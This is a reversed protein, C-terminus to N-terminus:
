IIIADCPLEIQELADKHWRNITRRTMNMKEAIEDISYGNIYLYRLVLQYNYNKLHGIVRHVQMRLNVLLDIEENIKEDLEWVKDLSKQFGADGTPSSTVKEGLIPSSLSTAMEMLEEREKMQSNIRLNLWQVQQLYEKPDM